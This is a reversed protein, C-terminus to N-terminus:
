EPNNDELGLFQFLELQNAFKAEDLLMQWEQQQQARDAIRRFEEWILSREKFLFKRWETQVGTARLVRDSFERAMSYAVENPEKLMGNLAAECESVITDHLAVLADQVHKASLTKHTIVSVDDSSSAIDPSSGKELSVSSHAPPKEAVKSSSLNPLIDSADPDLKDLHQRIQRQIIGSYLVDFRALTQFGLQLESIKGNSQHQPLREAVVELFDKGRSRALGGLRGEDVLVDVIQSKVADMLTQLQGDLFLFYKSLEARLQPIYQLYAIKYADTEDRITKLEDISPLAVEDRCKKIVVEIEAKFAPDETERKSQLDRILTELGTTLRKWVDPFRDEFKSMEDYQALVQRSKELETNIDKQLQNLQEQCSSAYKQDIFAINNVLYNLVQDLVEKQAETEDSCDAIVTSHVEINKDYISTALAKCRELNDNDKDGKVWNLVMFSWLSIPLIDLSKRAREYLDVDFDSWDDGLSSPMRVFLVFDVDQELTKTLREEDVYNMDGLGPLDILAINGVDANPFNCFIEVEKVALYHVIPQGDGDLTDQTVYTRIEDKSIDLSSSEKVLQRYRELNESYTKRLHGYMARSPADRRSEPLLPINDKNLGQLSAPTEGLELGEYYPRIVENLFSQNRIFSWRPRLSVSTPITISRVECVQVFVVEGM